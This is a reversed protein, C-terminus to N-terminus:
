VDTNNALANFLSPDDDQTGIEMGSLDLRTLTCDNNRVREMLVEVEDM